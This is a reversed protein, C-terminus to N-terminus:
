QGVLASRVAIMGEFMNALAECRPIENDYGHLTDYLDELDAAAAATIQIGMRRDNAYQAEIMDITEVLQERSYRLHELHGRTEALKERMGALRADPVPNM